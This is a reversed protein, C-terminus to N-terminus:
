NCNTPIAPMLTRNTPITWASVRGRATSIHPRRCQRCCTSSFASGPQMEAYENVFALRTKGIGTFVIADLEGRRAALSGIERRIRYCYLDIALQARTVQPSSRVCTVPFARCASCDRSTTFSTNSTKSGHPAAGHPVPDGRISRVQDRAWQYEMLRRLRSTAISRGSHLACMSAGSGLHLV